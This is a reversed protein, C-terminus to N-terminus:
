APQPQEEQKRNLMYGLAAKVRRLKAALKSCASRRTGHLAVRVKPTRRAALFTLHALRGFIGCIWTPGCDCPKRRNKGEQDDHKDRRDCSALIWFLNLASRGLGRIGLLDSLLNRGDPFELGRQRVAARHKVKEGGGFLVQALRALGQRKQFFAERQLFSEIRRAIRGKQLQFARLFEGRQDFSDV